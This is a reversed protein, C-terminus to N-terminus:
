MSCAARSESSAAPLLVPYFHGRGSVDQCATVQRQLNCTGAYSARDCATSSDGCFYRQETDFYGQCRNNNECRTSRATGDPQCLVVRTGGGDQLACGPDVLVPYHTPATPFLAECAVYKTGEVPVALCSEAYTAPDCPSTSHVCRADGGSREM